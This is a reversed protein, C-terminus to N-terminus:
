NSLVQYRSATGLATLLARAMHITHMIPNKRGLVLLIVPLVIFGHIFLGLLVTLIYFGLGSFERVLDKSELLRGAVLFIIMLPVLWIIVRILKMMAQM